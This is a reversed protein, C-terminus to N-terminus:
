DVCIAGGGWEGRCWQDAICDADDNSFGWTDDCAGDRMKPACIGGVCSHDSGLLLACGENNNGCDGTDFGESQLECRRVRRAANALTSSDGGRCVAAVAQRSPEGSWPWNVSCMAEESRKHLQLWNAQCRTIADVEVPAVGGSPYLNRADYSPDFTCNGFLRGVDHYTVNGSSDDCRYAGREISGKPETDDDAIENTCGVYFLTSAILVAAPTLVSLPHCNM